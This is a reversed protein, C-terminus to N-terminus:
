SPVWTQQAPRLGSRPAEPWRAPLRLERMSWATVRRALQPQAMSLRARWGGLESLLKM